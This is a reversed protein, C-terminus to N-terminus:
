FWSFFLFIGSRQYESDTFADSIRAWISYIVYGMMTPPKQIHVDKNIALCGCHSLGNNEYESWLVAM